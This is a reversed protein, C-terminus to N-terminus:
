QEKWGKSVVIQYEDSVDGFSEDQAVRMIHGIVENGSVNWCMYENGLFEGIAAMSYKQGLVSFEVRMGGDKIRYFGKVDSSVSRTNEAIRNAVIVRLERQVADRVARIESARNSSSFKFSAIDRIVPTLDKFDVVPRRQPPPASAKKPPAMGSFFSDFDIHESAESSTDIFKHGSGGSEEDGVPQGTAIRFLKDMLHDQNISTTKKHYEIAQRAEEPSENGRPM